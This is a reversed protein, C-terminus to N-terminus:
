TPGCFADLLKAPKPRAAPEPHLCKKILDAAPWSRLEAPLQLHLNSSQLALQDGGTPHHGLGCELLIIGLAYIDSKCTLQHVGKMQEPSMYGWTGSTFGPATLTTLGIHRAYGLDIVCANGSPQIVINSPKLDRHVILMGWMSGIAQAVDCALQAIQSYPLTGRAVVKNLPDGAIYTTAVVILQQRDIIITGNWLLRAIRESRMARLADIEREIRKQLQGPFYTKIAAREGNITGAYIIGQGGEALIGTINVHNPLAGAITAVSRLQQKIPDVQLAM